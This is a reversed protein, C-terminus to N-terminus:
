ANQAEMNREINFLRKFNYALCVPEGVESPISQLSPELENNDARCQSVHRGLVLQTGEADVSIQANYSQTTGQKHKRM